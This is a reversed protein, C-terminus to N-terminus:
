DTKGEGAEWIVEGTRLIEALFGSPDHGAEFLHPEINEDLDNRLYCLKAASELFDQEIREVIVAVDIDSEPRATGQAHSGFLIVAKVPFHKRVIESYARVRNIVTAKDM